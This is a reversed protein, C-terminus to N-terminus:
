INEGMHCLQSEKVKAEGAANRAHIALSMRFLQRRMCAAQDYCQLYRHSWKKPALLTVGCCSCIRRETYPDTPDHGM